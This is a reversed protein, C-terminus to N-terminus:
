KQLEPCEEAYLEVVEPPAGKLQSCDFEAPIEQTQTAGGMMAGFAQGIAVPDLEVADAVPEVSGTFEEFAVLLGLEDVGEPIGEGGEEFKEFQIFDIHMQTLAGDQVWFDITMDGEPIDNTAPSDVGSPMGMGMDEVLNLVDTATDRLPLTAALHTGPDEDGENTVTANEQLIDLFGNLLKKQDPAPNAGMQQTFQALNKLVLWDGAVAAQVWEFGPQGQAQSAFADAQNPDQGFTELIHKIDARVYLSNDVIRLELGDSGAVRVLISSEAKAVDNGTNRTSVVISSDLIKGATEEDLGGESVAVLSETTSQLSFEETVGEAESLARFAEILAAKPDEEPDTGPASSCAALLLTTGILCSLLKRM